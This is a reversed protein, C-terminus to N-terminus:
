RLQYCTKTDRLKGDASFIYIKSNPTSYEGDDSRTYYSLRRLHREIQVEVILERELTSCLTKLFELSANMRIGHRPPEEKDGSESSSWLECVLSEEAMDPMYWKQQELDVSLGLREIISDGIRYPPYEIEGAHPDAADLGKDQSGRWIWGQLEFPSENFEMDEEQYAPLKFDYPNLCTSLANLLSQSTKQPVLASTIYFSEKRENDSDSWSGRINLWTGGNRETLLGDLFDDPKIEQRWNETTKELLWTRQELPAPDRRDALWRGDSRTLTHGQLWDAWENNCWDYRHVVPMELLLKAAVTLMAHYSIYFSYDDTRPYSGHSHWTERESHHSNWLSSRPDRIFDNGITISWEKLVVERTLEEVQNGSIGFVSGLPEFWYRDFDWGFHLKLNRDVEGRAHWPTEEFNERYGDIEKVPMQSIGVERLKDTVGSDYTGPFTAEISLAIKAAFKQILAHPLGDLVHHAFISHHRRLKEPSDIAVRALAILLYLRAHLNYFPFAHSGFANVCDRNMWEILANIECECGVEALRRVCHAAQWRVASRPSGLAAWVFGTFADSINDPPLLWNDWSGDAYNEDIHVEFRSLAFELLDSAEQPSIFSSVIESFGFLVSASVLDCSESLGEIIGEHILPQLNNEARIERIFDERIYCNTLRSAFRRAILRFFKSWSKKVSIKQRYSDPFNLLAYRIDYLDAREADALTQLFDSAKSVPVRKFIEKWFTEPHRPYPVADFRAIATSVEESKTLDLNGLIEEWDINQSEEPHNMRPLQSPEETDSARPQQAYFALVQQIEKNDLSLREAVRKLNQWSSESADNLRLQRVTTDLIYQRCTEDSEAEICLAAFEDFRYEWSFASLSWGISPAVIKSRVAEHALAPLQREFWGVDRDRWRSLAAFASPPHLKACVQIAENRSWYKERAVSDGVLEACRIFRYAIEPSSRGGEAARKAIAVVAEWREVLEDGFKSVAEIACNFYAAADTLSIPLVARALDIYYNAKAEPGEDSISVVIEYCSQELQNRIASLHELRYAARVVILHDKLSLKYEKDFLKEIISVEKFSDCPKKLALSEFRVRAIEFPLRDHQRYRQSRAKKSHQNAEQFAVELDERSGLLIRSRILYWLLLGGVVQKFEEIDHNRQYNKKDELLKEPVLAEIEPELDGLIAARLATGRLFLHREGDHYDNSTLGSARQPLYHNLVRLIKNKSLEIASGAEAFSIIASTFTQESWYEAPKPIRVRKHTLLDLCQGMANIPPFKGVAILEDAVAVMLYQNRCGLQSIEDVATFNGADIFRKIFLRTIRFVVEPPQWSLIFDVLRKTGHLHFHAVAMEGLDSDTLREESYTKDKNNSREEFYLSLWNGAVRLFSRAEGRFEEVSSLLAASYVNESGDWGGRLMRRFALEQVRQPSQLPAILDVNQTLLELQRKDGAVEEGARLALKAADAYRKQRLAAKFAFQLRYVRINREDIPSDEPLYDDSIALSILEDYNESQLLLSPLVQAAYSFESALPKLRTIYSEIQQVSASFKERFRTETPEDRFQVSNESIWLPRGLDAVFSVVTLVEVEAAIALVNIPIFPTLNALGLCIADIYRQFDTPLKDKVTSIASELQAAIQEEVTTGSPGLGTLIDSVTNRHISLANAQVRPNGGTLRHFELGDIDTASPFYERLHVLTEAQSFSKLEIQRVTSLPKLLDIRETRCLAIIRCGEPVEERLLQHAFCSESFEKAAMEANDAADILVALIAGQNVKRLATAATNLRSLFARLIADDLDTARPIMLECLGRSAIENVIQVLADRHRHRPESRNRYKGSGFCDYVIGLSGTPLSEVLQRSFVSKGVGGGAHIIVPTFAELVSNLLIEHQERKIFNKSEEFELPAPFLDRESTVGFRKLIDERIIKGNNKPLAKDQVLAIVSDIQANDVTGALLESIEAHLEHRQAIYDGEGDVLELSACFDRLKEDKLQTYKELTRQNAAQGGNKIALIGAKFSDAIQRNTIISFRVDRFQETNNDEYLHYCFRKAFGEVTDKLDSLQFPQNVRQTSHKLQFYTIEESCNQTNEIYETVDIVYEGAAENIKSGEIVISKVPSKPHIMRLCRRAAWRYHFVDGARSYRVLENEM